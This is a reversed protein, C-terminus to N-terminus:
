FSFSNIKKAVNDFLCYEYVFNNDLSINQSNKIEIELNVLDILKGIKEKMKDEILVFDKENSKRKRKIKKPVKIFLTPRATLYFYELAIGSCDTILLKYTHLNDLHLNNDLKLNNFQKNEFKNLDMPHPRFIVKHGEPYKINDLEFYHESLGRDGWSPAILISNTEKNKFEFPEIGDFLPYGFTLVVTSKSILPKIQTSVTESPSIIYDFNKFSNKIYMESPSVLSHFIYIYKPRKKTPLLSSKPFFSTGIKPSTTFFLECSLNKLYSIKEKENKLVINKFNKCLTITELSVIEINIFKDSYSKIVNELFRYHSNNELFFVINKQKV